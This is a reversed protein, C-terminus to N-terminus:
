VALRRDQVVGTILPCRAPSIMWASVSQSAQLILPHHSHHTSKLRLQGPSVFNFQKAQTTEGCTHSVLDVTHDMNPMRDKDQGTVLSAVVSIVLPYLRSVM